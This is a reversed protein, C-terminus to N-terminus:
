KWGWTILKYWWKSKISNLELKYKTVRQLIDEYKFFVDNYAEEAMNKDLTIGELETLLRANEATLEENLKIIKYIDVSSECVYGDHTNKVNCGNNCKVNGNDNFFLHKGM